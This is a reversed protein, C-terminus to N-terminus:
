YALRVVVSILLKLAVCTALKVVAPMAEKLEACNCAIGDEDITERSRLERLVSCILASVVLCTLASVAVLNFLRLATDKLASFPEAILAIGVVTRAAM